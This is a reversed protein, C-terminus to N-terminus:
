WRRLVDYGKSELKLMRTIVDFEDRIKNKINTSLNTLDLNIDVIKEHQNYVIAENIIDDVAIEVDPNMAMKRYRSVLEAENKAAGELDVYQGYAGGAAISMAGDDEEPAVFSKIQPEQQTSKRKIEFGFLEAM